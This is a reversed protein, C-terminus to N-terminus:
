QSRSQPNKKLPDTIMVLPKQFMDTEYTYTHTYIYIFIYKVTKDAKKDKGFRLWQSVMAM